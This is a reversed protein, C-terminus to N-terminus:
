RPLSEGWQQASTAVRSPRWRRCLRHPTADEIQSPSHYPRPSCLSAPARLIKVPFCRTCLGKQRPLPRLAPDLRPNLGGDNPLHLSRVPGGLNLLWGHLTLKASHMCATCATSKKKCDLNANKLYRFLIELWAHKSRERRV